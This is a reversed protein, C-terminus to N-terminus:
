KKRFYILKSASSQVIDDISVVEQESIKNMLKRQESPDRPINMNNIRMYTLLANASACPSENLFNM